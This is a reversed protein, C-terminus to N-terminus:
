EAARDGPRDARHDAHGLIPCQHVSLSIGPRRDAHRAGSQQRRHQYLQVRRSRQQDAHLRRRRAAVHVAHVAPRVLRHLQAALPSGGLLPQLHRSHRTAFLQQVHRVYPRRHEFLHKRQVGNPQDRRFQGPQADSQHLQPQLRVRRGYDSSRLHLRLRDGSPHSPDTGARRGDLLRLLLDLPHRFLQSQGQRLSLAALPGLQRRVRVCRHLSLEVSAPQLRAPLDQRDTGGRGLGLGM